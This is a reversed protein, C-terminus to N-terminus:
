DKTNLGQEKLSEVLMEILADLVSKGIQATSGIPDGLVGIESIAKIGKTHIRKELEEDFKGLWGTKARDMRVLKPKFALMFSTEALGAHIGSQEPTFGFKECASNFAPLFHGYYAYIKAKREYRDSLRRKAEKVTEFNGGHTPLLIINRFGHHVYAEVYDDIIGALVESRLSITGPFDIHHNSCGPRITPAVLTRGIKRAVREAVIDGLHTDTTIPLHPGHQEISGIGIAVNKYGSEMAEKIDKWTMNEM